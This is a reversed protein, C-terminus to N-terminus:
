MRKQTKKSSIEEDLDIEKTVTSVEKQLNNITNKFKQIYSGIKKTSDSIGQPRFSINCYNNCIFDRVM